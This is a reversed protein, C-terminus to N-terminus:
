IHLFLEGNHLSGMEPIITDKEWLNETEHPGLLVKITSRLTQAIQTGNLFDKGTGVLKYSNRLKEEIPNMTDPKIYLDKIWKSNLTKKKTKKTLSLLYSDIQMERKRKDRFGKETLAHSTM